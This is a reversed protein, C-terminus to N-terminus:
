YVTFFRENTGSDSVPFEIRRGCRPCYGTFASEKSNLHIRAYTGCCQFQVGLYPRASRPSTQSELGPPESSADFHEGAM